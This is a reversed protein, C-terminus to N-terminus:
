KTGFYRVCAKTWHGDVCLPELPDEHYDHMTGLLALEHMQQAKLHNTYSMPPRITKTWGSVYVTESINDQM